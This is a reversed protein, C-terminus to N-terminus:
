SAKGKGSIHRVSEEPLPKFTGTLLGRFLMYQEWQSKRWMHWYRPNMVMAEYSPLLAYGDPFFFKDRIVAIRISRTRDNRFNILGLVVVLIVFWISLTM